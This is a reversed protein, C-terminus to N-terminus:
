FKDLCDGELYYWHKIEDFIFGSKIYANIANINKGQTSVYLKKYDGKLVEWNVFNLLEQGIGRHRFERFVGFLGISIGDILYRYTIFGALKNEIYYGICEDDMIGNISNIVWTLYFENIKKKTFLRYRSVSGYLDYFEQIYPELEDENIKKFSTNNIKTNSNVLKQLVVKSEVFRFGINELININKHNKELVLAQILWPRDNKNVVNLIDEERINDEDLNYMDIEWFNSDWELKKM